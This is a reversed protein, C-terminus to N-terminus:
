PRPTPPHQPTPHSHSHTFATLHVPVLSVLHQSQPVPQVVGATRSSSTPLHVVVKQLGLPLPVYAAGLLTICTTPLSTVAEAAQGARGATWASGHLMPKVLWADVQTRCTCGTAIQVQAIIVCGYIKIGIIVQFFEDSARGFCRARIGSKSLQATSTRSSHPHICIIAALDRKAKSYAQHWTSTNGRALGTGIYKATQEQM